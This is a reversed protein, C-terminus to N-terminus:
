RRYQRDFSPKSSTMSGADRCGGQQSTMSASNCGSTSGPDQSSTPSSDFGSDAASDVPSKGGGGGGNRWHSREVGQQEPIGGNLWIRKPRPPEALPSPTKGSFVARTARQSSSGAAAAAGGVFPGGSALPRGYSGAGAGYRFQDGNGIPAGRLAYLDEPGNRQIHHQQQQPQRSFASDGSPQKMRPKQSYHGAFTQRPPMRPSTQVGSEVSLSPRVSEADGGRGDGVARTTPIVPFKPRVPKEIEFWPDRRITQIEPREVFDYTFMSLIMNKCEQSIGTFNKWPFALSQQKRLIERNKYEENFPMTGTVFIYLIVGIAWVDAKTPSYEQGALIEPAAYAKSGCFTASPNVIDMKAFGFDCIKINFKDDILMNELKLDRHAIGLRHM